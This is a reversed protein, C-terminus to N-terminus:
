SDDLFPQLFQLVGSDAVAHYKIDEVFQSETRM